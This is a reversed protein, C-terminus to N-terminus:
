LNISKRRDATAEGQKKPKFIVSITSLILFSVKAVKIAASKVQATM